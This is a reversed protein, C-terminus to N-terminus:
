CLSVHKSVDFYQKFQCLDSNVNSELLSVFMKTKRSQCVYCRLIPKCRILCTAMWYCQKRDILLIVRSGNINGATVGVGKLKALVIYIDITDFIM